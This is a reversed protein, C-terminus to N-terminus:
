VTKRKKEFYELLFLNGFLMSFAYFIDEVPITGMRVGLNEADNYWVVQDQIFTGTLVGNVGFFPILIVLFVPLFRKLLERNYVYGVMLVLLFTSFNIFTYIREFFFLIMCIGTFFLVGIVTKFVSNAYNFDPFIEYLSYYTFVCAYPICIFFLWEEIPLNVLDVGLLYVLNFGWVGLDTFVIDWIIFVTTVILISFLLSKWKKYFKLRPHFSVLFPVLLSGVNLLLYLSKLM